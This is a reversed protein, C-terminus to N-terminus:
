IYGYAEFFSFILADSFGSLLSLLLVIPETILMYFPRCITKLIAKPRLRDRINPIDAPGSINEGEERRRKVERKLILHGLTETAVFCHIAQVFIGFILQIWFNWRWHLRDEIVGGCIAGIVSGICSWFTAFLVARQQEDREFMDVVMGLTASGGASSLGALIRGALVM